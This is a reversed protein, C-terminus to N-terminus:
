LFRQIATSHPLIFQQRQVNSSNKYLFDNDNSLHGNNTVPLQSHLERSWRFKLDEDKSTRNYRLINAIFVTNM